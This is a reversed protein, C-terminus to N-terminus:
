KPNRWRTRCIPKMNHIGPRFVMTTTGKKPCQMRLSVIGTQRESTIDIRIVPWSTTLKRWQLPVVKKQVSSQKINQNHILCSLLQNMHRPQMCVFYVCKYFTFLINAYKFLINEKNEIIVCTWSRCIITRKESAVVRPQSSKNHLPTNQSGNNTSRWAREFFCHM